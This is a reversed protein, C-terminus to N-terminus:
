SARDQLVTHRSADVVVDDVHDVFRLVDVLFWGDDFPLRKLNLTSYIAFIHLKRFVFFFILILSRWFM